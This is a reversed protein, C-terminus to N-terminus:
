HELELHMDELRIKLRYYKISIVPCLISTTGFSFINYDPYSSFIQRILQSESKLNKKEFTIYQCNNLDKIQLNKIDAYTELYQPKHSQTNTRKGQM